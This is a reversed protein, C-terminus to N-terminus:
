FEWEVVGDVMIIQEENLTARLADEINSVQKTAKSYKSNHEFIRTNPLINGNAFEKLLKKMKNREYTQWDVKTRVVMRSFEFIIVESRLYIPLM